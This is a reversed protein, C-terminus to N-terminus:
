EAASKYIDLFLICTGKMRIESLSSSEVAADHKGIEGFIQWVSSVGSFLRM